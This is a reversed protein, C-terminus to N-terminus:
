KVEELIACETPKLVGGASYKPEFFGLDCTPHGGTNDFHECPTRGDWCFSGLPVEIPFLVRIKM